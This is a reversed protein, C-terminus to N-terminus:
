KKQKRFWSVLGLGVFVPVLPLITDEPVTTLDLIIVEKTSFDPTEAAWYGEERMLDRAVAYDYDIRINPNYLDQYYLWVPNDWREVEGNQLQVLVDKDIASAIAKRVNYKALHENSLDFSLLQGSFLDYLPKININSDEKLKELMDMNGNDPNFSAIDMNGDLFRQHILDDFYLMITDVPITTPKQAPSEVAVNYAFYYPTEPGPEHIIFDQDPSDLESPFHYLDRLKLLVYGEDWVQEIVNYPETTIWEDFYYGALEDTFKPNKGMAVLETVTAETYSGDTEEYHLITNNLYAEPYLFWANMDYIDTALPQPNYVTMTNATYNFEVTPVISRYYREPLDM